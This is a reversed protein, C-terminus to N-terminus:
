KGREELGGCVGHRASRAQRFWGCFTPISCDPSGREARLTQLWITRHLFRRLTQDKDAVIDRRWRHDSDFRV